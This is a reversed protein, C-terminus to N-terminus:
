VSRALAYAHVSSAGGQRLIRAAESLTSGTTFVDDILLIKKGTLHAAQCVAFSGQVNTTREHELLGVQDPTKRWKRLVTDSFPIGVSKAFRKGLETAQNFGRELFRSKHIPVPVVLDLQLGPYVRSFEDAMLRSLPECVAIQSDYKLAHIAERLV